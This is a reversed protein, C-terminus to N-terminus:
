DAIHITGDCSRKAPVSRTIQWDSSPNTTCSSNARPSPMACISKSILRRKMRADMAAEFYRCTGRGEAKAGYLAMDANKLLHDVDCGDNPSLAIGISVDVIVQHGNIRYPSRVVADRLRQALLAADTPQDLPAQVIAFEDGGLRAITDTDRLCGRLRGAVAKLLEDGTSHGLTDNIGKFHDLDIYLVALQGGRRVYALEHDLRERLLVRNPLDTLADYHALHAIQADARKRATIDEIVGLM